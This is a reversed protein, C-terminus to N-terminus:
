QVDDDFLELGKTTMSHSYRSSGRFALLILAKLCIHKPEPLM